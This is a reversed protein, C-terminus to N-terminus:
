DCKRKALALAVKLGLDSDVMERAISGHKQVDARTPHQKLAALIVELGGKQVIEVKNNVDLALFILAQCGENQVDAHMIHQQLGALLLSIGGERAVAVRSDANIALKKLAICGIEQLYASTLHQTLVALFAAIGDDAKTMDISAFLNMLSRFAEDENYWKQMGHTMALMHHFIKQFIVLMAEGAHTLYEIALQHDFM